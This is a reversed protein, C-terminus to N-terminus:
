RHSMNFYPVTQRLMNKSPQPSALFDELMNYPRPASGSVANTPHNHYLSATRDAPTESSPDWVCPCRTDRQQLQVTPLIDM